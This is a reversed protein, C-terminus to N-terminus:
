SNMRTKIKHYRKFLPIFKFRFLACWLKHQKYRAAKCPSAAWVISPCFIIKILAKVLSKVTYGKRIKVIIFIKTPIFKQNYTNRSRKLSLQLPQFAKYFHICPTVRTKSKKYTGFKSTLEKLQPIKVFSHIANQNQAPPNTHKFRYNNVWFPAQNLLGVVTNAYVRSQYWLFCFWKLM